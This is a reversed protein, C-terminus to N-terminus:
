KSRKAKNQANLHKTKNKEQQMLFKKYNEADTGVKILGKVIFEVEKLTAQFLNKKPLKHEGPKIM